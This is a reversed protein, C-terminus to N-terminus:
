KLRKRNIPRKGSNRKKFIADGKKAYRVAVLKNILLTTGLTYVSSTIMYISFAASYFFSFVGFIIPMLITMWKNTKAASGDVSSLENAAKQSRMTIFQQLFMTGISLAVLVFYGNFTGMESGIDNGLNYTVEAYSEAYTASMGGVVRSISSQFSSFDPVEKNLMSDPYWVNGIWAFTSFGKNDRYNQASAARANLQVFEAVKEFKSAESMAAFETQKAETFTNDVYALYESFKNFDVKFSGENVWYKEPAEGNEDVVPKTKNNKVRILFNDKSNQSEKKNVVYFIQNEGGIMIVETQPTQGEELGLLSVAEDECYTAYIYTEVSENYANVMNNYTTLTAFNSYTSFAGIVIIFIVISVIMPLCAGLPNIGNAKQLEMVKQSYMNKDGAYQKQLKEMQPRMKEMLLSQKKQKVRTLVDIPLTITKLILTFIVTGLIAGGYVGSFLDFLWKILNGIWDLSVSAIGDVAFDIFNQSVALLTSIEM